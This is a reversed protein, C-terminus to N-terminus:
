GGEGEATSNVQVEFGKAPWSKDQFQTHFYIGSNALHRTQFEAKLEFNRFDADKVPGIYFLHSRPGDAALQGDVVKWSSSSESAKWGNLSKGDFLPVWGDGDAAARLCTPASLLSALLNRRSIDM